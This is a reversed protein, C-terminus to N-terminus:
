LLYLGWSVVILFYVRRACVKVSLDARWFLDYLRAGNLLHFNAVPDRAQAPQHHQKPQQEQQPKGGGGGGKKEEM